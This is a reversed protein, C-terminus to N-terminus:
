ICTVVRSLSVFNILFDSLLSNPPGINDILFMLFGASGVVTVLCPSALNEIRNQLHKM